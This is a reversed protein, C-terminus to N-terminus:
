QCGQLISYVDKLNSIRYVNEVRLLPVNKICDRLKSYKRWFKQQQRRKLAFYKKLLANLIVPKTTNHLNRWTTVGM